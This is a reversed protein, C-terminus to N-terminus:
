NKFTIQGCPISVSNQDISIQYFVDQGKMVLASRAIGRAQYILVSIYFLYEEKPNITKELLSPEYFGADLFGKLNSLGHDFQDIKESSM